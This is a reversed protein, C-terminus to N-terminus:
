FKIMSGVLNERPITTNAVSDRAVSGSDRMRIFRKIQIKTMGIENLDSEDIDRLHSIDQMSSFM